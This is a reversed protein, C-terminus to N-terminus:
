LLDIRNVNKPFELLHFAFGGEELRSGANLVLDELVDLSYVVGQVRGHTVEDRCLLQNFFAPDNGADIVLNSANSHGTVGTGAASCLASCSILPCDTQDNLIM